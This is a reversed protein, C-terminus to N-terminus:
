ESPFIPLKNLGGVGEASTTESPRGTLPDHEMGKRNCAALLNRSRSIGGTERSQRPSLNFLSSPWSIKKRLGQHLCRRLPHKLTSWCLKLCTKLASASINVM